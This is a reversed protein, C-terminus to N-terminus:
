YYYNNNNNDSKINNIETELCFKPGVSTHLIQEWYNWHLKSKVNLQTPDRAGSTIQIKRRQHFLDKVSELGPCKTKEFSLKAM